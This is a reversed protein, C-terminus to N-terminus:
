ADVTRNLIIGSLVDIKADPFFQFIINGASTGDGFIIAQSDAAGHSSLFSLRSTVLTGKTLQLGTATAHLTGGNLNLVSSSDFMEILNNRASAPAYSFTTGKDLILTSNRQITSAIPTSYIFTATGKFEVDNVISLQGTTLTANSAMAYTANNLIISSDGAACNLKHGNIDKFVIRDFTISSGPAVTINGGKSLDISNDQGNFLTTGVFTWTSFFDFNRNLKMGGGNSSFVLSATISTAKEGWEIQNAGLVINGTTLFNRETGFHFSDQFTITGGNLAITNTFVGDYNMSLSAAASALTLNGSYQGGGKFTANQGSVIVSVLPNGSLIEFSDNTDLIIIRDGGFSGTVRTDIAVETNTYVMSILSVSAGPAAALGTGLLFGVEGFKVKFPHAAYFKSNFDFFVRGGFGHFTVTDDSANEYVAAGGSVKFESAPEIHISVDHGAIGDGVIFGFTTQSSSIDVMSNGVFELEGRTLRMGSGTIKLTSRDVILHSTDSVLILPENTPPSNKRGISFKVGDGLVLSSDDLISSSMASEYAFLKGDGTIEVRDDIRLAGTNFSYTRHLDVSSDDLIIVGANDLCVIKTESIADLKTNYFRLTSGREVVIQGSDEIELNNGQGDIVGNGSFTWKSSLRTETVLRLSGGNMDFTLTGTELHDVGGLDVRYIGVDVTGTTKFQKDQLFVLHEHLTIKGGNLIIDGQMPSSAQWTFTSNSDVGTITGLFRASGGITNNDRSVSILPSLSGQMFRLFDSRDLLLSNLNRITGTLYLQSGDSTELITKSTTVYSSVGISFSNISAYILNGNDFAVPRQFFIQGLPQVDVVGHADVRLKDNAFNNYTLKGSNIKIISQPDAVVTIDNVSTGDGLILGFQTQTTNMDFTAKGDISVVGNKFQAGTATINLTANNILLEATSDQFVLPQPAFTNTRGLAFTVGDMIKLTSASSITMTFDSQYAFLHSGTIQVEDSFRISGKTIRVDNQLNLTSAAITLKATNTALSLPNQSSFIFNTNEFTVDAGDQIIIQGSQTFTLVNNFANLRCMGELLIPTTFIMGGNFLLTINKFTSNSSFKSVEVFQDALGTAFNVGDPSWRISNINTGKEAGSYLSLTEASQDFTYIRVETSANSAFGTALRSGDFNFQVSLATATEGIRATVRESLIATGRNFQYVRVTESGGSLGVALYSGTTSWSVANVDTGAGFDLSATLTLTAGDFYYLLLEESNAGATAATGVALYSGTIDWSLSNKQVNRNTTFNATTVPTTLGTITSFSFLQLENAGGNTGVAVWTGTRHWSVAQGQLGLNDTDVLTLSGIDSRFRYIQLGQANNAKGIALYQNDRWRVANTNNGTDINATNTLTTGDFYWIVLESGAINQTVSAVYQGNQSWDVSNVAAGPTVFSLLQIFVGASSSLFNTARNIQAPFTLSHNNGNFNGPNVFTFPNGILLDRSLLFQGGNFQMNGTIPFFGDYTCTTTNDELTFGGTMAGFGLITNNVDAAPFTTAGIRSVATNSGVSLGLITSANTVFGLAFVILVKFRKIIL